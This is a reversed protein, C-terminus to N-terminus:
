CPATNTCWLATQGDSTYVCVNCDDQVALFAEPNGNTNSTWIPKSDKNYLVFNGDDQMIARMIARYGNPWAGQAQWAPKCDEYVVLNGDEQLRLITSGNGSTWAYNQYLQAGPRLIGNSM